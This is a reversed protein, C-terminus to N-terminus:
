AVGASAALLVALQAVFAVSGLADGTVGGLRRKLLRVACLHLAFLLGLALGARLVSSWAFLMFLPVLPAAALALRRPQVGRAFAEVLSARGPAAGLRAAVLLMALRGVGAALPMALLLRVGMLDVMCAARLAVGLGLALTGYTGLRSDKLIRLVGERDWGGGLADALDALGDEHLAGTMRAEVALALLVAIWASWLTGLGVVLVATSAGVLVGVWPFFAVSRALEAEDVRQVGVPVPVRTLFGLACLFDRM